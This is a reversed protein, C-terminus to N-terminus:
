RTARRRAARTDANPTRALWRRAAILLGVVALAAALLAFGAANSEVPPAGLTVLTSAAAAEWRDGQAATVYAPLATTSGPIGDAATVTVPVSTTAGAALEIPREAPVVSVDRGAVLHLTGAMSTAARSTVAVTVTGTQQLPPPSSMTVDLLPRGAGPTRVLHVAPVSFAHGFADQYALEVVLPFTGAGAPRPLALDWSATFGPPMSAPGDGRATAGALGAEPLVHEAPEDGLNKVVVHADVRDAVDADVRLELTISGHAGRALLVGAVVLAYSTRRM